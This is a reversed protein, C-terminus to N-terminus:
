NKEMETQFRDKPYELDLEAEIEKKLRMMIPVIQKIRYSLPKTGAGKDVGNIIDLWFFNHLMTMTFKILIEYFSELRKMKKYRPLKKKNVLIEGENAGAPRDLVDIYDELQQLTEFTGYAYRLEQKIENFYNYFAAYSGENKDLLEHYFYPVSKNQLVAIEVGFPKTILKSQTDNAGSVKFSKISIDVLDEKIEKEKKNSKIKEAM